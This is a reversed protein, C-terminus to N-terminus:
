FTQADAPSDDTETTNVTLHFPVGATDATLTVHTTSDTATVAIFLTQTSANWAAVIDDCTIAVTTNTATVTLTQTAGSESTLIMLFKDGAEITGGPTLTAVKAVASKGGIWYNIDGSAM